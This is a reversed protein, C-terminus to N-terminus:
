VLGRRIESYRGEFVGHNAAGKLGLRDPTYNPKGFARCSANEPKCLKNTDYVLYLMRDAPRVTTNSPYDERPAININQVPTADAQTFTQAYASDSNRTDVFARCGIAENKCLRTFRHAYVTNNFTDKYERCGLMAQPEPTGAYSTDCQIPTNWSNNVVYVTDQVREVRVEDIFVSRTGITLSDLSIELQAIAADPGSFLGLSYRQWDAGVSVVGVETAANSGALSRLQVALPLAGPAKAWFSVRYLHAKKTQIIRRPSQHPQHCACHATVLSLPNKLARVM